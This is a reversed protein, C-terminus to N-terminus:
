EAQVNGELKATVGIQNLMDCAELLKRVVNIVAITEPHQLSNAAELLVTNVKAIEGVQDLLIILQQKNMNM